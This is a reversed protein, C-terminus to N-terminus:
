YEDNDGNGNGITRIYQSVFARITEHAYPIYSLCYWTVSIYQFLLCLLLIMGKLFGEKGPLILIFITGCLSSLYMITATKRKKYFMKKMQQKPGSFFCAGLLTIINGVTTNVVMPYPNNHFLLDFIRLISGLSLIYGGIMCTICGIIRERLTFNPLEYGCCEGSSSGGDNEYESLSSETSSNNYGRSTTPLLSRYDFTSSSGDMIKRTLLSVVYDCRYLISVSATRSVASRFISWAPSSDSPNVRIPVVPLLTLCDQM